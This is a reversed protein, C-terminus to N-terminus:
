KYRKRENGDFWVLGLALSLIRIFVYIQQKEQLSEPMAVLQFVVFIYRLYQWSLPYSRFCLFCVGLDFRYSRFALFLLCLCKEMLVHDVLNDIAETIQAVCPELSFRCSFCSPLSYHLSQFPFFFSSSWLLQVVFELNVTRHDQRENFPGATHRM